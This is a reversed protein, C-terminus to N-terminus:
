KQFASVFVITNKYYLLQTIIKIENNGKLPSDPDPFVSDVFNMRLKRDTILLPPTDSSDPILTSFAMICLLNAKKSVYITNM